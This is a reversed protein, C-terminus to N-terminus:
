NFAANLRVFQRRLICSRHPPHASNCLLHLLATSRPCPKHASPQQYGQGWCSRSVPFLASHWVRVRAFPINVSFRVSQLHFTNVILDPFVVVVLGPQDLIPGGVIQFKAQISDSDPPSSSNMRSDLCSCITRPWFCRASILPASTGIHDCAHNSAHGCAFVTARGQTLGHACSAAFAHISASHVSAFASMSSPVGLLQLCTFLCLDLVHASASTNASAPNQTACFSLTREEIGEPNASDDVILSM